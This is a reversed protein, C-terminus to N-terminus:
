SEFEPMVTKLTRIRLKRETAKRTVFLTLMRESLFGLVRQQYPDNSIQIRQKLEFLIDFLWAMYEQFLEFKMVYMNYPFMMGNSQFVKHVSDRYDPYKELLVAIMADWDAALHYRKYQGELSLRSDGVPEPLIIDYKNVYERIGASDCIAFKNLQEPPMIDPQLLEIVPFPKNVIRGAVQDSFCFYRRYHGFGIYDLRINKWAWYMATLECFYKNQASINDIGMDDGLMPLWETAIARGVQIPTIIDTECIWYPKHYCIFFKGRIDGL